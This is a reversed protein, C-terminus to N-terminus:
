VSFIKPFFIIVGVSAAFLACILVAAASMDKIIAILHSVQPKIMDSFREIISNILEVTIVLAISLLLIMFEIATVKFFIAFFLVACAIISHIRINQEEKFAIGIGRCAHKVSLFFKKHEIHPTRKQM